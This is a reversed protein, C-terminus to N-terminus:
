PMYGGGNIWLCQGTIYRSDGSLLFSIPGVVDEAEALRGLPIASVYASLDLAPADAEDSRGTGGRLFATDVAGPCVANVRVKPAAELALTRTLAIIGAKAIAYPGYGPRINQALGSATNVFSAGNGRELLPMAQQAALLAGRLNGQMVEDFVAPTTESLSARASAFGALNVFGDLAPFHEALRTFGAQTSRVDALDLPIAPIGSPAPHRELSAPLDLVALAAGEEALRAVLARGIGGAGGLVAIRRAM